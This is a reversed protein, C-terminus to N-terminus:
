RERKADLRSSIEDLVSSTSRLTEASAELASRGIRLGHVAWVRGLDFLTGVAHEVTDGVDDKTAGAHERPTTSETETQTNDRNEMM